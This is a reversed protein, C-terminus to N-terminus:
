SHCNFFYFFNEIIKIYFYDLFSLDITIENNHVKDDSEKQITKLCQSGVICHSLSHFSTSLYILLETLHSTNLYSGGLFVNCMGVADLRYKESPRIIHPPNIRALNFHRTTYVLHTLFYRVVKFTIQAM